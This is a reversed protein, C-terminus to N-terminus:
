NTKIIGETIHEVPANTIKGGATAKISGASITLTTEAQIADDGATISLTGGSIEVFGKDARETENSKIGDNGATIEINGSEVTVSYKGRIGTNYADVFLTLEKIKIDNKSSIGNKYLGTVRLTGKGQLTLDDDCYLAANPGEAGSTYATGDKLTNTTGEKATIILKDASDCYIAPGNPNTINVNALILEVQETKDVVVSVQCSAATGTLTYTGPKTISVVGDKFSAGTNGVDVGSASFTITGSESPKPAASNKSDAPSNKQEGSPSTGKPTSGQTNTCSAFAMIVTFLMALILLFSINKKM